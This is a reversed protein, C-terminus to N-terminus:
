LITYWDLIGTEEELRQPSVEAEPWFGADEVPVGYQDTQGSKERQRLVARQPQQHLGCASHLLARAPDCSHNPPANRRQSRHDGPEGEAHLRLNRGVEGPMTPAVDEWQQREGSQKRHAPEQPSLASRLVSRLGNRFVLAFREQCGAGIKKAHEGAYNEPEVGVHKGRAAIRRIGERNMIRLCAVIAQPDTQHPPRDAHHQCGRIGDEEIAVEGSFHGGACVAFSILARRPPGPIVVTSHESQGRPSACTAGAKLGADVPESTPACCATGAISTMGLGSPTQRALFGQPLSSGAPNKVRFLRATSSRVLLPSGGRKRCTNIEPSKLDLSKTHACELPKVSTNKTVASQLPTASKSSRWLM